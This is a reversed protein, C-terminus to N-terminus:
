GAVANHVNEYIKGHGAFLNAHPGAFCTMPFGEAEPPLLAFATGDGGTQRAAEDPLWGLRFEKLDCLIAEEGRAALNHRYIGFVRGRWFLVATFRTKGAICLTIGQRFSRELIEPACVLRRFSVADDDPWDASGPANDPLLGQEADVGLLQRWARM